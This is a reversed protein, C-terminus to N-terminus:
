RGQPLMRRDFAAWYSVFRPDRRLKKFYAVPDDFLPKLLPEDEGTIGRELLNAKIQSVVQKIEAQRQNIIADYEEDKLKKLFTTQQSLWLSDASTGLSPNEGNLYARITKAKQELQEIKKSLLHSNIGIAVNIYNFYPDKSAEWAVGLIRSYDGAKMQDPTVAIGYGDHNGSPIIYDGINVKGAVKVLVQGMFAVKEYGQKDKASPKNGLVGPNKSIVRIHSAGNTNLSIKGGKIGVVEGFHMDLEGKQRELWEAYDAGGSSYTVGVDGQISSRYNNRNSVTVALRASSEAAMGITVLGAPAGFLSAILGGAEIVASSLEISTSAIELEYLNIELKYEWDDKLEELTQGEIAGQLGEDDHFTMFNNDNSRSGNVKIYIGQNSGEVTLPYSDISEQSGSTGGIVEVRGDTILKVRSNDATKFHLDVKDINGLFHVSTDTKSNGSTTWYISQNKELSDANPADTSGARDAHFAFPVAYIQNISVLSPMGGAEQAMEIKLWPVSSSWPVKTLAGTKALGNGISLSVLGQRDSIVEQEEAYFIQQGKEDSQISIKLHLTQNAIVQNDIDRLVAQYNFGRQVNQAYSGSISFAMMFIGAVWLWLSKFANYKVPVSFSHTNM